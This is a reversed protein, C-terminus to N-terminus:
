LSISRQYFDLAVIATRHLYDLARRRRSRAPDRRSRGANMGFSRVPRDGPAGGDFRIRVRSPCRRVYGAAAAAAATTPAAAAVMVMMVTGIMVPMLMRMMMVIQRRRRMQVKTVEPRGHVAVGGARVVTGARRVPYRM